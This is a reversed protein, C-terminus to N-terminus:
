RDFLMKIKNIIRSLLSPKYEIIEFHKGKDNIAVKNTEESRKNKFINDTNYKERLKEQYVMENRSYTNILQKKKEEDKCWYNCNLVALVALTERKLDQENLPKLLTIEKNYDKLRKEKFLTRLKRPIQKIYVDDMLNLIMDVEAYAEMTSQKM